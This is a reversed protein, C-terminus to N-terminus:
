HGEHGGDEDHGGGDAAAAECLPICHPEHDSCDAEVDEHAIDHCMAIEGSGTDVDHCADSIAQCTPSKLEGSEDHSHDDGCAVLAFGVLALVCLRGTQM